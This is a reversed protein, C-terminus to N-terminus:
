NLTINCLILCSASEYYIFSWMGSQTIDRRVATHNLPHRWLPNLLRCRPALRYACLNTMQSYLRSLLLLFSCSLLSSSSSSSSLSKANSGNNCADPRQTCICKSKSKLALRESGRSWRCLRYARQNFLLSHESCLTKLCLVVQRYPHLSYYLSGENIAPTVLVRSLRFGHLLKIKKCNNYSVSSRICNFWRDFGARLGLM